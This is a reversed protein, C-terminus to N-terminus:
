MVKWWTMTNSTTQVSSYSFEDEAGHDKLDITTEVRAAIADIDIVSFRM